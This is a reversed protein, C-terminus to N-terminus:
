LIYCEYKCRRPSHTWHMWRGRAGHWAPAPVPPTCAAQAVSRVGSVGHNSSTKTDVQMKLGNVSNVLITFVKTILDLLRSM